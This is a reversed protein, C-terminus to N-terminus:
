ISILDKHKNYSLTAFTTRFDHSQVHYDTDKWFYSLKKQLANAKFKCDKASFILDENKSKTDDKLKKIARHLTSTM